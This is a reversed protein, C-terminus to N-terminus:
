DGDAATEAIDKTHLLAARVVDGLDIDGDLGPHTTWELIFTLVPWGEDSLEEEVRNVLTGSYTPHEVLEFCVTHHVSDIRIREVIDFRDTILRCLLADPERAIIESATCGPLYRHPHEAKDQLVAWVREFKACVPISFEANPM